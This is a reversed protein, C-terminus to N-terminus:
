PRPSTSDLPLDDGEKSSGEIDESDNNGPIGGLLSLAGGFFDAFQVELFLMLVPILDKMNLRFHTQLDSSLKRWRGDKDRIEVHGSMSDVLTALRRNGLGRLLGHLVGAIQETQLAGLDLKRTELDVPFAGFLQELPGGVAELVLEELVFWDGLPMMVSRYERGNIRKVKSPIASM